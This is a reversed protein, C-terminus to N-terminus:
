ENLGYPLKNGLWVVMLCINDDSETSDRATERYATIFTEFTDGKPWDVMFGPLLSRDVEVPLPKWDKRDLIQWIDNRLSLHLQSWNQLILASFEASREFLSISHRIKVALPAQSSNRFGAIQVGKSFLRNIHILQEKDGKELNLFVEQLIVLRFDDRMFENVAHFPLFQTKKNDSM